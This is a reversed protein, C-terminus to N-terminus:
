YELQRINLKEMNTTMAAATSYRFYYFNNFNDAAAHPTM